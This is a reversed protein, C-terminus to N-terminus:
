KPGVVACRYVQGTAGLTIEGHEAAQLIAGDSTLQRPTIGPNFTVQVEEWLPNFGDGQIADLVSEFPEGGPLGPDSMFIVNLSRNRALVEQEANPPLEKFNIRFLQDDYYAPMVGAAGNLSGHGGDIKSGVVACRYVEGTERLTVEGGNAAAAIENDSLLQRPTFGANFTVQIEEWLPNFGEGQIADLVSVFPLGGPLGPDSMFIFNLSGNHALLAAEADPPEEKFNINFLRGDYYAPMIGASGNTSAAAAASLSWPLVALSLILTSIAARASTKM